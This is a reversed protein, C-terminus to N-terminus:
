LRQIAAETAAVLRQWAPLQNIPGDIDIDSLLEQYYQVSNRKLKELRKGRLQSATEMIKYLREKPNALRELHQLKPLNLPIRGKPNGVISRIAQPDVMAWAETEQVPIVPVYIIPIGLQEVRQVIESYRPVHNRNDSDKHLFFININQYYQTAKILKSSFNNLTEPERKSIKESQYIQGNVETVYKRCLKELPTLLGAETPGESILLFRVAMKYM